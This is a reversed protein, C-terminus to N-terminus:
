TKYHTYQSSRLAFAEKLTRVDSLQESKKFAYKMARLQKKLKSYESQERAASTVNSLDPSANLM